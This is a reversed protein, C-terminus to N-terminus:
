ARNKLCSIPRLPNHDMIMLRLTKSPNEILIGTCRLVVRPSWATGMPCKVRLMAQQLQRRDRPWCHLHTLLPLHGKLAM